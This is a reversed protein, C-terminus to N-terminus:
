GDREPARPAAGTAQARRWAGPPQGTWRRFARSFNAADSYGLRAAIEEIGHAEGRLLLTARERLHGERVRGFTTEEAALRRKLTRPSLGLARAVDDLGPPPGDTAALKAAVQAAVRETFGLAELERECQARALRQAAADAMALPLDLVAADFVLRNDAQEFRARGPVVHEFREFHPPRPLAMDVSGGLERGTLDSGIRWIGVLLAVLTTERAAGLDAREEIVLAATGAGDETVRLGLASTRTPAFRVAVALADRVTAATMAAFGLFGHASVRMQLGLYVGLAPEGTLTKARTVLAEITPIALRAGPAALADRALGLGDFLADESVGWRGVLAALELAHVAPLSMDHTAVDRGQGM